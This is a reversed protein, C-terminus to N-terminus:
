LTALRAAGCAAHHDNLGLMLTWGPRAVATLRQSVQQYLDPLLTGLRRGVGGLLGIHQPRYIAHAIRLAKVLARAPPDGLNMSDIAQEVDRGFRQRLAPLGFYAELTGSAGDPGVPAPGRREAIEVDMAGFHGPTEGTIVVPKGEDLVAAGVGTGLSIALLRGQLPTPQVHWFDTAAALADSVVKPAPLDANVANRLLGLLPVGVLGPMNTSATITTTAKDVIGPVCLGVAKLAAGSFPPVSLVSRLQGAIETPRPRAYRDSTAAALVKGKELLAVKISTGGIDIGLVSM